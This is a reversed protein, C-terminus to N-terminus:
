QAPDRVADVAPPICNNPDPCGDLPLSGGKVGEAPPICNNPDPCANEDGTPGLLGRAPLTPAPKNRPNTQEHDCHRGRLVLAAIVLLLVLPVRARKWRSAVVIYVMLGVVKIVLM